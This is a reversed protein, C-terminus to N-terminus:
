SLKFDSVMFAHMKCLWTESPQAFICYDSSFTNSSKFVKMRFSLFKSTRSSCPIDITSWKCSRLTASRRGFSLARESGQLPISACNQMYKWCTSLKLVSWSSSRLLLQNPIAPRAFKLDAKVWNAYSFLSFRLLLLSQTSFPFSVRWKPSTRQATDCVKSTNCIPSFEISSVSNVSKRSSGILLIGCRFSSSRELFGIVPFDITWSKVLIALASGCKSLKFKVPQWSLSSPNASNSWWTISDSLM